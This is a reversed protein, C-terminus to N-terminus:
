LCKFSVRLSDFGNKRQYRAEKEVHQVEDRVQIEAVHEILLKLLTRLILRAHPAGLCLHTGFGFSLHPNPKRDLKVTEPEDFVSEDFNAAAWGLSVRGNTLVQEGKVDTEHPCVRGIHTLPMFARFFEESAHVIRKPDERLYALDKPNKGLHAIASSLSHIITDRGGAFTLNAFGMMEDRTLKRGQYTAQGLASFFDEGPEREGRDFQAHLYSELATGKKALVGDVKFVHIGWGIYTDAESEPVNLLYTLARSQIPLAFENVIEIEDRDLAKLLLSEILSEVKSVVEPSKSRQFFPEVLARYEGHEPPNTEIPL